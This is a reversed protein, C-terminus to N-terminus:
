PLLFSPTLLISNKSTNLFLASCTHPFPYGRKPNDAYEVPNVPMKRLESNSPKNSKNLPRSSLTSFRNFIRIKIEEFDGLNPEFSKRKM